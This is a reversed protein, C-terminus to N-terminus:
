RRMVKQLEACRVWGLIKDNVEIECVSWSESKITDVILVMINAELKTAVTDFSRESVNMAANASQYVITKDLTFAQPGLQSQYYFYGYFGLIVLLVLKLFM